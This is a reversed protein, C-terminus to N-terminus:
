FVPSPFCAPTPPFLVTAISVSASFNARPATRWFLAAVVSTTALPSEGAAVTLSSWAAPLLLYFLEQLLITTTGAFQHPLCSALTLTVSAATTFSTLRLLLLNAHDTLIAGPIHFCHLHCPLADAPLGLRRCACCRVVFVEQCSSRIMRIIMRIM